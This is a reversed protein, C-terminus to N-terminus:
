RTNHTIPNKNEIKQNKKIKLFSESRNRKHHFRAQKHKYLCGWFALCNSNQPERVIATSVQSRPIINRPQFSDDM